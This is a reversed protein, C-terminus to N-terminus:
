KRKIVLAIVFVLIIPIFAILNYAFHLIVLDAFSGLIGLCSVCGEVFYQELKVTHEIFHWSQFALAFFVLGYLRKRENRTRRFSQWILIILILYTLNYTFHVPELDLFEGLVGHAVPLKLVFKQIIQSVHEVMHFSQVVVATMIVVTLKFSVSNSM